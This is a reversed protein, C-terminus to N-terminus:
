KEIKKQYGENIEDIEQMYKGEESELIAINKNIEERQAYLIALRDNINQLNLKVETLEKEKLKNNFISNTIGFYDIIAKRAEKSEKLLQELEALLAEDNKHEIEGPKKTAGPHCKPYRAKFSGIENDHFVCKVDCIYTVEPDAYAEMKNDVIVDDVVYVVQLNDIVERYLKCYVLYDILLKYEIKSSLLKSKTEKAKGM